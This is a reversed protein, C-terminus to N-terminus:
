SYHIIVYILLLGGFLFLNFGKPNSKTTKPLIEETKNDHITDGHSPNDSDIPSEEELLTESEDSDQDNNSNESRIFHLLKGYSPLYFSINNHNKKDLLHYYGTPLDNLFITGNQDTVWEWCIGTTDTLIFLEDKVVNHNIDEVMITLDGKALPHYFEVDISDDSDVRFYIKQGGLIPMIYYEGKPLPISFREFGNDDLNLLTILDGSRWLPDNFLLVESAYLGYESSFPVTDYMGSQQVIGLFIEKWSWLNINFLPYDSVKSINIEVLDTQDDQYQISVPIVTSDHIYNQNTPDFDEVLSYEGLPIKDFFLKGDHDTCSFGLMAGVPYLWEGDPGYLVQKSYLFYCVNPVPYKEKQYLNQYRTVIVKGSPIAVEQYIDLIGDNHIEKIQFKSKSGKLYPDRASVDIIEYNGRPLTFDSLFLGDNTTKFINTGKKEILKQNDIDFIQFEFYSSIVSNHYTHHVRIKETYSNTPKIKIKVIKQFGQLLALDQGNPSTFGMRNGDINRILEIEAEKDDLIKITLLQGEITVQHNSNNIVQYGELVSNKDILTITSFVNGQIEKTEFKPGEIERKVNDEIINKYDTINIKDGKEKYETTFSVENDGTVRRWILEQSALYYYPHQDKEKVGYHAVLSLYDLDDASFKSLISDDREYEVGSGIYPNICYVMRGELYAYGIPGSYNQGNLYRNSYVNPIYDWYVSAAALLKIDFFFCVILFIFLKKM